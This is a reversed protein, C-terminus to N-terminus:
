AGGMYAQATGTGVACSAEVKLACVGTTNVICWGANGAALSTLDGSAKVMLGTPSTYDAAATAIVMYAADPHFKVSIIFADFANTAVSVQIGTLTTLEHSLAELLTTNGAALVSVNLNKYRKLGRPKATTYAENVQAM